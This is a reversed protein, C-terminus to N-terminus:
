RRLIDALRLRAVAARRTVMSVVGSSCVAASKSLAGTRGAVRPFLPATSGVLGAKSLYAALAKRAMPTVKVPVAASNPRRRVLVTGTAPTYNGAVLNVVAGTPLGKGAFLSLLARDRLDGVSKTGIPKLLRALAQPSIMLRRGAGQEKTPCFTYKPGKPGPDGQDPGGGTGGGDGDDPPPTPQVPPEGTRDPSTAPCLEVNPQGVPYLAAGGPPNVTRIMFNDLRVRGNVETLFLGFAQVTGSTPLSESYNAPISPGVNAVAPIAAWKLDAPRMLVPEWIGIKKQGSSQQSIYWTSDILFALQTGNPELAANVGSLRQEYEVITGPNRLIAASFSYEKTFVTLGYTPRFWFSYGQSLGRPVSNVSGGVTRSGYSFVKLNSFKAVPQGPIFGSWGTEAAAAPGISSTCYGFTERYITALEDLAAVTGMDASEGQAHAGLLPQLCGVIGLAASLALATKRTARKM